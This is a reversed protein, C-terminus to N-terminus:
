MYNTNPRSNTGFIQKLIPALSANRGKVARPVLALHSSLRSFLIAGMGGREAGIRIIAYGSGALRCLPPLSLPPSSSSPLVFLNHSVSFLHAARLPLPRHLLNMESPNRPCCWRISPM